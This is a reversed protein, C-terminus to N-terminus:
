HIDRRVPCEAEARARTPCGPATPPCRPQAAPARPQLVSAAGTEALHTAVAVLLPHSLDNNAGHALVLGPTVEPRCSEPRTLVGAVEGGDVEIRFVREIM